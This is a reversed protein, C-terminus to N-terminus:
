FSYFYELLDNNDSDNFESSLLKEYIKFLITIDLDYLVKFKVILDLNNTIADESELVNIYDDNENYQFESDIDIIVKAADNRIDLGIISWNIDHDTDFSFIIPEAFKILNIKKDQLTQIYEHIDNVLNTKLNNYTVKSVLLTNANLQM